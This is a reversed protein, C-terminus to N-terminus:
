SSLDPQMEGVARVRDIFEVLQAPRGTDVVSTSSSLTRRMETRRKEDGGPLIYVILDSKYGNLGNKVHFQYASFRTNIETLDSEWTPRRPVLPEM